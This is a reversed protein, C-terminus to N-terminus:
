KGTLAEVTLPASGAGVANQANVVPAGFSLAAEAFVDLERSVLTVPGAWGPLPALMAAVISLIAIRKSM